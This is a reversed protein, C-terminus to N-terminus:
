TKVGDLMVMAVPGFLLIPLFAGWFPPMATFRCIYVFAFFTGVVLVCLGFSVKVNRERSLIFPLGLLLMVVNNIPEAIRIHMTLEIAAKDAVWGGDLMRRLQASSLYESWSDSQQMVLDEPELKSPCFLRGGILKWHPDVNDAGDVWVAADAEIIGLVEERGDMDMHYTFTPNTLTCLGPKDATPEYLDLRQAEIVMNYTEDSIASFGKAKRVVKPVALGADAADRKIVEIFAEQGYATYIKQTSPVSPWTKTQRALRANDLVWGAPTDETQPRHHGWGRSHVAAVLVYDKNRMLVLPSEMRSTQPDFWASYWIRSEDKVLPVGFVTTRGEDSGDRQLVLKDAVGPVLVEQNLVVLGGLLMASVVIPWVVRHLSMGSALMATLENTHNMRAVAFVASLVIAVGGMQAFYELSHYGYYEAIGGLIAWLDGREAFEDMNAFLDGLVRLAVLSVLWMVVSSLFSRLIYRDLTRM